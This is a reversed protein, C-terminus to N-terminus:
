LEDLVKQMQQAKDASMKERKMTESLEHTAEQIAEQQTAQIKELNSIM